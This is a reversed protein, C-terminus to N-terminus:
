REKRISFAINPDLVENDDLVKLYSRTHLYTKGNDWHVRVTEGDRWPQSKRITGFWGKVGFGDSRLMMVKTDKM